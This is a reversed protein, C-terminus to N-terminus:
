VHGAGDIVVGGALWNIVLAEVAVNVTTADPAVGNVYWHYSPTLPSVLVGTPSPTIEYVAGAVPDFLKV